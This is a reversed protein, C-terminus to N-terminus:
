PIKVWFYGFPYVERLDPIDTMESTLTNFLYCCIVNSQNGSVQEFKQVLIWVGDPSLLDYSEPPDSSSLIRYGTPIEAISTGDSSYIWYDSFTSTPSFAGILWKDQSLPRISDIQYDPNEDPQSLSIEKTEGTAVDTLEFSFFDAASRTIMYKGDPLIAEFNTFQTEEGDLRTWKNATTQISRASVIGEGWFAGDNFVPEFEVVGVNSNTLQILGSGDPHVIFGQRKGNVLSVFGIWDSDGLWTADNVNEQLLDLTDPEQLDLLYLDGAQFTNDIYKFLLVKSGDPSVDLPAYGNLFEILKNSVIDYLSIKPDCSGDQNCEFRYFLLGGSGGIPTPTFTPTSTPEPSPTTTPTQTPSISTSTEIPRATPEMSAQSGCGVALFALSALMIRILLSQKDIFQEHNAM